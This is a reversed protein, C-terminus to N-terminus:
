VKIDICMSVPVVLAVCLGHLVSFISERKYKKTQRVYGGCASFVRGGKRRTRVIQLFYVCTCLLPGVKPRLDLSVCV